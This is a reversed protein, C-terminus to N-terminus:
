WVKSLGDLFPKVLTLHSAVGREAIFTPSTEGSKESTEETTHEVPFAARQKVIRTRIRDM